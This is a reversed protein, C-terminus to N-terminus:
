IIGARRGFAAGRGDEHPPRGLRKEVVRKMKKLEENLQVNNSLRGSTDVILVDVEDKIAVDLARYLM